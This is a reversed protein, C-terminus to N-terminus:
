GPAARSQLASRRLSARYASPPVAHARRFAKSFAAVTAFGLLFAVESVTRGKDSLYREALEGRLDDRLKRYTTGEDALERRLASVNLGLRSAVSSIGADGRRLQEELVQRVRLSVARSSHMRELRAQLQAEYISRLGPHALLMPTDLCGRPFILANHRRGFRLLAGKFVRAYAEHSTPTTHRLHVESVWAQGRVRLYRDCLALACAVAYDNSAPLPPVDDASQLEWIAHEGEERLHSRQAGHVLPLYRGSLEIAERLTACSRVAQELVDFDGPALLEAALLGIEPRGCRSGAGAVLELAARHGIRADPDALERMSLGERALLAQEEASHGTVRMFPILWSLSVTAERARNV